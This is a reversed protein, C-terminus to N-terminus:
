RRGVILLGGMTPTGAKVQHTAPGEERILQGFRWRRLRAILWPGLIFSLLLATIAAYASRFTIYRFVNLASWHEHLPYLLHYLMADTAEGAPPGGPGGSEGSDVPGSAAGNELGAFVDVEPALRAVIRELGIRRSGKLLVLDGARLRPRLWEAAAEADPVWDATESPLACGRNGEWAAAGGAGRLAGGPDRRGAARSGPPDRRLAGGIRWSGLVLLRRGSHPVERLFSIALRTSEPSANYCDLIWDADLLRQPQMRLPRRPATELRHRPRGSDAGLAEAAALAGLASLVAGQGLLSMRIPGTRPYRALERSPGSSPVWRIGYPRPSLGFTRRPRRRVPEPLRELIWSDHPLV